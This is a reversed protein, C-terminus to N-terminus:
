TNVKFEVPVLGTNGAGKADVRIRLATGDVQATVDANEYRPDNTVAQQVSEQINKIVDSSMRDGIAAPLGVTPHQELEGQEIEMKLQIGQVANQYGYARSLDGDPGVALDGNDSLAIDVKFTREAQTLRETLPTTRYTLDVNPDNATPILITDGSGVTGPKRAILYPLSSPTYLSLNPQGDVTIRFQGGGIDDVALIKRRQQAVGNGQLRVAQNVVLDTRDNVVFTRGNALSISRSFGEEDIYPARLQNLIAIDRARNADGLYLKAMDDLTSGRQVFVPIGSAPTTLQAEDPLAENAYSFPNDEKEGYITGTALSGLFADRGDEIQAALIIDDDTPVRDTATPAPLGYVAAYNEDMMGTSYAINESVEKLKDAVQFVDSATLEQSSQIQDELAAQVGAPLPQLQSVSVSEAQEPNDLFDGILKTGAIDSLDTSPKEGTPASNVGSASAKGAAVLTSAGATTAGLGTSAYPNGGGSGVFLDYFPGRNGDTSDAIVQAWQARNSAIMANINAKLTPGFDLLDQELGVIDKVVLVGQNVVNLVENVDSQVAKVVNSAQNLARRATRLRETLNRISFENTRNPVGALSALPASPAATIDWCRLSISYNYLLPNSASRRLEFNVPTVVYTINDKPSSFLLRLNSAGRQKKNHAYELFFNHLQWFQYYGTQELDGDPLTESKKSQDPGGNVIAKAQNVLSNIASTASPFISTAIKSLAGQPAAPQNSARRAPWLGTTGQISINRFVVGNNEELIGRNTAQVTSAFQVSISVSSPPIRLPLSKNSFKYNPAPVPDADDEGNVLGYGTSPVKWNNTIKGDSDALGVAFYYTHTENWREGEIKTTLRDIIKQKEEPSANEPLAVGLAQGLSAM